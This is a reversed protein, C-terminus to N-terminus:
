EKYMNLEYPRSGGRNYVQVQIAKGKNGMLRYTNTKGNSPKRPGMGVVEMREDPTIDIGFKLKAHTIATDIASGLTKHYLEYGTGSIEENRKSKQYDKYEKRKAANDTKEKDTMQSVPKKTEAMGFYDKVKTTSGKGPTALGKRRNTLKRNAKQKIKDLKAFRSNTQSPSARDTVAGDVVKSGVDDARKLTNKQQDRDKLAAKNYRKKMDSSIEDLKVGAARLTEADEWSISEGRFKIDMMKETSKKGIHKKLLMAVYERPDTDMNNVYSKLKDPHGTKLLNAVRMFANKDMGGNKKAYAELEAAAKEMDGASEGLEVSENMAKKIDAGSMGFNMILKNIALNSMFPIDAKAVAIASEKDLKELKKSLKMGNEVSIRKGRLSEYSKKLMDIQKPSMSEEISQELEGGEVIINMQKVFDEKMKKDWPAKKLSVKDKPQADKDAKALARAKAKEKPSMKSANMKGYSENFHKYDVTTKANGAGGQRLHVKDGVRKAAVKEGTEDEFNTSEGDKLNKIKLQHKPHLPYSVSNGHNVTIMNGWSYKKKNVTVPGSNGRAEDLPKGYLSEYPNVSEKTPKEHGWGKDKLDLHDEYSTTMRGKGTKPDYMMHDKYDDAGEKRLSALDSGDIKGNKNKDIKKQKPSLEEDKMKKKGYGYENLMDLFAAVTADEEMNELEKELKAIKRELAVKKMKVASSNGGFKTLMKELAAIDKMIKEPSAAEIQLEMCEALTYGMALYKKEDKKDIVKVKGKLQVMIENKADKMQRTEAVFLVPMHVGDISVTEENVTNNKMDEDLNDFNNRTIRVMVGDFDWSIESEFQMSSQGTSREKEAQKLSKYPKGQDVFEGKTMRQVQFKNDKNKIIRVKGEESAENMDELFLSRAAIKLDESVISQLEDPTIIELEAITEALHRLSTIQMMKKAISIGTDEKNLRAKMATLYKSKKKDNLEIIDDETMEAVRQELAKGITVPYSKGGISFKKKGAKKAASAATIFSAVDEAKIDELM